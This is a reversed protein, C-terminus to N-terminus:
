YGAKLCVILLHCPCLWGTYGYWVGLVVKFGKSAAAPLIQQATNCESSSYTRVLSTGSAAKLADFDSEYDSTFKCSGDTKKDGLAFGLTGAGSVTLPAAALVLPLIVSYRMTTPQVTYISSLYTKFPTHPTSLYRYELSHILLSHCIVYPPFFSIRSTTEISPPQALVSPKAPTLRRLANWSFFFSFVSFCRPLNIRRVFSVGNSLTTTEVDIFVLCNVMLLYVFYAKARLHVMIIM